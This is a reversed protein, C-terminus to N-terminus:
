ARKCSPTQTPYRTVALAGCSQQPQSGASVDLGQVSLTALAPHRQNLESWARAKGLLVSATASICAHHVHPKSTALTHSQSGSVQWIGWAFSLM